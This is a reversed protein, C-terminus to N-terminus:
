ITKWFLINVNDRKFIVSSRHKQSTSYSFQIKNGVLVNRNELSLPMRSRTVFYAGFEHFLFGDRANFRSNIAAITICIRVFVSEVLLRQSCDFYLRTMVYRCTLASSFILNKDQQNAQILNFSLTQPRHYRRIKTTTYHAPSLSQISDRFIWNFLAYNNM